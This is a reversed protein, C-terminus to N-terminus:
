KRVKRTEIIKKREEPDNTWPMCGCEVARIYERKRWGDLFEFAAEISKFRTKSIYDETRNSPSSEYEFDDTETNLCRRCDCIAWASENRKEITYNYQNYDSPLEKLLNGDPDCYLWGNLGVPPGADFVTARALLQEPTM